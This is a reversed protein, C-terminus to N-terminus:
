DWDDEWGNDTAKGSGVGGAKTHASVQNINQIQRNRGGNSGGNRKACVAAMHGVAKCLFCTASEAKCKWGREHGGARGCKDCDVRNGRSIRQQTGSGNGNWQGSSAGQSGGAEEGWQSNQINRRWSGSGENRNQRESARSQQTVAYVDGEETARKIKERQRITELNIAFAEVQDLSQGISFKSVNIADITNQKLLMSLERDREDVTKYGCLSVQKRAREMYERITEEKRQTMNRLITIEMMVDKPRFIANCRDILESFKRETGEASAANFSAVERVKKGGHMRLAMYKEAESWDRRPPKQLEFADTLMDRWTPWELCLEEHTLDDRLTPMAWNKLLAAITTTEPERYRERSKEHRQERQQERQERRWLHEERRARREERRRKKEVPEDSLQEQDSGYRKEGRALEEERKKEEENTQPQPETMPRDEQEPPWEQIFEIGASIDEEDSSESNVKQFGPM